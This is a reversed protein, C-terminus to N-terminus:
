PIEGRLISGDGPVSRRSPTAKTRWKGYDRPVLTEAFRGENDKLVENQPVLQMFLNLSTVFAIRVTGSSRGGFLLYYASVLFLIYTVADMVQSGM